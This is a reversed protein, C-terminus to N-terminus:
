AWTRFTEPPGIAAPVGSRTVPVTPSVVVKCTVGASALLAPVIGARNMALSASVAVPAPVSPWAVIVPSIPPRSVLPSVDPAGSYTREPPTDERGRPRRRIGLLHRGNPPHV